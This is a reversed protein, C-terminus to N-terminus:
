DQVARSIDLLCEYRYQPVNQRLFAVLEPCLARDLVYKRIVFSQRVSKTFYHSSVLAFHDLLLFVGQQYKMLDNMPLDILKAQPYMSKVVEGLVELPSDDGARSKLFEVTRMRRNASLDPAHPLSPELDLVAVHYQALWANIEALDSSTDDDGIDFATYVVPDEPFERRGKLAFSLAVYLSKTFDILPSVHLYHQAFALMEYLGPEPRGDGLTEFVRMFNQRGAYYRRLADADIYSLEPHAEDRFATHDRLISPLLLRKKSNVREGRYYIKEGNRFPLFLEREFDAFSGIERQTVSYSYDFADFLRDKLFRGPELQM